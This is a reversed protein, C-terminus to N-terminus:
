PLSIGKNWSIGPQHFILFKQWISHCSRKMKTYVQSSTFGWLFDDLSPVHHKLKFTIYLQPPPPPIIIWWGDTMPLYAYLPNAGVTQPTTTRVRNPQGLKMNPLNIFWIFMLFCTYICYVWSKYWWVNPYHQSLVRMIYLLMYSSSFRSLQPKLCHFFPVARTCSCGASNWTDMDIKTTIESSISIKPTFFQRNKLFTSHVFFFPSRKLIMPVEGSHWTEGGFFYM